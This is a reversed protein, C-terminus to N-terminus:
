KGVPMVDITPDVNTSIPNNTTITITTTTGEAPKSIVARTSGCSCFGLAAGIAAALITLTIYLARKTKADM